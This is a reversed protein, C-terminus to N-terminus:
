NCEKWGVFTLVTDGYREERFIAWEPRPMVILEKKHHQAIIIGKPSLAAARHLASLTPTVLSLPKKQDDKYPPGMFVIDFPGSLGSLDSSGDAQAVHARESFNFKELNAHLLKLCRGDRDIFTAARAGRSLAEIGVPGTGCYIDLFLSGKLRPALIDFLSKKVRALIPRVHEAPLTFLSRGKVEGGIVRLVFSVEQHYPSLHFFNCRAQWAYGFAFDM